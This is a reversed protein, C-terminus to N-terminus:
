LIKSSFVTSSSSFFSTSIKACRERRPAQCSQTITTYQIKPLFYSYMHNDKGYKKWREGKVGNLCENLADFYIANTKELGQRTQFHQSNLRTDKTSYRTSDAKDGRIRHPVSGVPVWRCSPVRCDLNNHERKSTTSEEIAFRWSTGRSWGGLHSLRGGYLEIETSGIAIASTLSRSVCAVSLDGSLISAVCTVQV